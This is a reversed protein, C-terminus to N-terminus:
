FRLAMGLGVSYQGQQGVSGLVRLDLDKGVGVSLSGSHQQLPINYGYEASLKFSGPNNYTYKLGVASLKGDAGLTVSPALENRADMRWRLEGKIDKFKMQDTFNATAALTVDGAKVEGTARLATLKGDGGFDGGVGVTVPGETYKLDFKGKEVKPNTGGSTSLTSTLSLRSDDDLKVSTDIGVKTINGQNKALAETDTQATVKAQFPDTSSPRVTPRVVEYKDASVPTGSQPLVTADPSDTGVPETGLLDRASYSVPPLSRIDGM